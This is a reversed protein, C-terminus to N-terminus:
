VQIIGLSKLANLIMEIALAAQVFVLVSGLVTLVIMLGPTKMVQDIFYMVLFDLVMIIALCIAVAQTMGPYQPAVMMFILIAAVGAPPVIMPVAVPSAALQIATSTGSGPSPPQAKQFIVQLAAILLVLGGAIRLADISIRYKGLLAGGALAVFVCLASAIVTGRIAVDRKFQADAGRTLGAFSPIVKIPGLLMFFITFIYSFQDM